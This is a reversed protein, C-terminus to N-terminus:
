GTEAPPVTAEIQISLHVKEGLIVGGTDLDKNWVMGIEKRDIAGTIELGTTQTSTFPNTAFGAIDAVLTVEKTVGRMTFDGTVQYVDGHAKVSKSVFTMTPHNEADFFDASLLHGDRKENNINVSGVDISGEIRLTGAVNEPDAWVNGSFADFRGPVKAVLHRVKFAVESHTPDVPFHLTEAAAIAPLLLALAVATAPLNRRLNM